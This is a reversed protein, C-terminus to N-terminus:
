SHLLSQLIQLCKKYFSSSTNRARREFLLTKRSDPGNITVGGKRLGVFYRKNGYQFNILNGLESENEIFPRVKLQNELEHTINLARVRRKLRAETKKIFHPLITELEEESDYPIVYLFSLSNIKLVDSHSYISYYVEGHNLIISNGGEDIEFTSYDKVISKIYNLNIM